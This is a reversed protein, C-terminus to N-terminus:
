TSTVTQQENNGEGVSQITNEKMKAKMERMQAERYFARINEEPYLILRIAKQGYLLFCIILNNLSIAGIQFIEKETDKQFFVIPFSVGFVVSLAFTTYTLIIGDNMLTPLNRGRFAQISCLLQLVM